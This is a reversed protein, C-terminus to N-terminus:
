QVKRSSRLLVSGELVLGKIVDTHKPAYGQAMVGGLSHGGMFVNEGQFGLKKLDNLSSTFLSGIQLPEPTDMFFSPVAM